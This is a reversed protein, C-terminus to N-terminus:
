SKQEHIFFILFWECIHLERLNDSSTIYGVEIHFGTTLFKAYCQYLIFRQTLLEMGLYGDVGQETLLTNERHSFRSTLDVEVRYLRGFPHDTHFAVSLSQTLM